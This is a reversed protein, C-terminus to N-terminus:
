QEKRRKLFIYGGVSVFAIISIIVIITTNNSSTLSESLPMRNLSYQSLTGADTRNMFDGKSLSASYKNYVYDYRDIIDKTSGAVEANHVYTTNALLGQADVSLKKFATAQSSWATNLKTVDTNVGDYDCAGGIAADFGNVFQAVENNIEETINMKYLSATTSSLYNEDGFRFRLQDKATNFRLWYSGIMLSTEDFTLSAAATATDQCSIKKSASKLYKGNACLANYYSIGSITNREIKIAVSDLEKSGTVVGDVVETTTVSNFAVDPESLSSNFAYFTDDLEYGLLYTGRWDAPATTVKTWTHAVYGTVEINYPETEKTTSSIDDTYSIVVSLTGIENLSDGIEMSTGGVTFSLENLNENEESFVTTLNESGVTFNATVVLGSVTFQNGETFSTDTTDETIILSTFVRSQVVSVTLEASARESGYTATITATGSGVESGAIIYICKDTTDYDVLFFDSTTSATITATGSFNETTVTVESNELNTGVEIFTHSLSISPECSSYEITLAGLETSSSRGRIAFCTFDGEVEYSLTASTLTTVYSNDSPLSTYPTNSLYLSVNKNSTISAFSISKLKLGTPKTSTYFGGNTSDNVRGVNGSTSSGMLRISYKVGTYDSATSWAGWASTSSGIAASPITTLDLVDILPHEEVTIGTITKEFEFDQYSGLIELQTIGVAPVEEGLLYDENFSLEALNITQPDGENWNITIYLGSLDWSEGEYYSKKTMDGDLTVSTIRREPKVTIVVSGTASGPSVVTGTLTVTTITSVANPTVTFSTGDESNTPSSIVSTNDSTWSITKEYSGSGGTLVGKITTQQGVYITTPTASVTLTTAETVSTNTITFNVVFQTIRVQNTGAQYFVVKNLNTGTFTATRITSGTGTGWTMNSGSTAYAGTSPNYYVTQTNGSKSNTGTIVVSNISILSAYDATAEITLTNKNYLRIDSNTNPANSGGNQALSYKFYTGVQSAKTFTESSADANVAIVGNNVLGAGFGIGLAMVAGLTVGVVKTFLKNM